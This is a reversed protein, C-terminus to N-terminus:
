NKLTLKRFKWITIGENEKISLFTKNDFVNVDSVTAFGQKTLMVAIDAGIGQEQYDVIEIKDGVEIEEMVNTQQQPQSM